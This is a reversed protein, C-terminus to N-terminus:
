VLFWFLVFFGVFFFLAQPLVLGDSLSQSPPVKQSKLRPEVYWYFWVSGAVWIPM